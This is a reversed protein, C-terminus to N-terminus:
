FYLFHEVQPNPLFYNSSKRWDVRPLTSGVMESMDDVSTVVLSVRMATQGAEKLWARHMEQPCLFRKESEAPRKLMAADEWIYGVAMREVVEYM